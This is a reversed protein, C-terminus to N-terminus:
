RFGFLPPFVLAVFLAWVFYVPLYRMQAAVIQDHPIRKLAFLFYGASLGILNLLLVINEGLAAVKNPSWGYESLRFVIASASLGDLILAALLLGLTLGDSVGFGKQDDRASMTYLVLALVLVLLLDVSILIERNERVGGSVGIGILVSAMLLLFLPTFIRALIPALNEIVTKKREVLFVAVVPIAFGGFVVLYNDVFGSADIGALDFLARAIITLVAGGCGILIAYIFAEGTFRVFDMRIGTRRWGSGSYAVGTVLWLAVPLHIGTLITTHNTDGAPYVNVVVAATAFIAAVVAILRWSIARKWCLYAAVGPLAFLAFNRIYPVGFEGFRGLGLFAPVKALLGAFLGLVVVLAFERAYRRREEPSDPSLVMQRWLNEAPVKGYEEGMAGIDGLRRVSVLFAEEESLGSQLLDAIGDRLHSELEELDSAAVTGTGRLHDRWKRIQVERDFTVTMAEWGKM